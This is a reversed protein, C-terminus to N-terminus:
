SRASVFSLGMGPRTDSAAAEERAIRCLYSVFEPDGGSTLHPLTARFDARRCWERMYEEWSRWRRLQRGKMNPVYLNLYSREFLTVLISFMATAREKQEESLNPTPEDAGMKLDPNELVLEMFRIYNDTLLAWTQQAENERAKRQERWFVFIAFPFGLATVINALFEWTEPTSM